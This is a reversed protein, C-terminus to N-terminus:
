ASISRRQELRERGRRKISEFFEHDAPVMRGAEVDDLGEQIKRQIEAKWEPNAEIAAFLRELRQEDAELAWFAMRVAEEVTACRGSAILAEAAAVDEPTLEVQM